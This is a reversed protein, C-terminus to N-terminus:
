NLVEKQVWEPLNIGFTNGLTDQNDSGTFEEVTMGDIVTRYYELLSGRVGVGPCRNFAIRSGEELVNGEDGAARSRYQTCIFAVQLSFLTAINDDTSKSSDFMHPKNDDSGCIGSCQQVASAISSNTFYSKEYSSDSGYIDNADAYVKNIAKTFASAIPLVMDVVVPDIGNKNVFREIAKGLIWHQKQIDSASREYLESYSLSDNSKISIIRQRPFKEVADIKSISNLALIAPFVRRSTPDFSDMRRSEKVLSVICDYPNTSQEKVVDDIEESYKGIETANPSLCWMYSSILQQVKKPLKTDALRVGAALSNCKGYLNSIIDDIAQVWTSHHINSDLMSKIAKIGIIEAIAGMLEQINQWESNSIQEGNMARVIERALLGAVSGKVCAGVGAYSGISTMNLNAMYPQFTKWDSLDKKQSPATFTKQFKDWDVPKIVDVKIGPKVLVLGVKDGDFDQIVTIWQWASPLYICGSYCLLPKDDAFEKYKKTAKYHEMTKIGVPVIPFMNNVGSVPDKKPVVTYGESLPESINVEKGDVKVTTDPLIALVKYEAGTSEFAAQLGDLLPSSLVLQNRCGDMTSKLVRERYYNQIRQYIDFVSKKDAPLKWQYGTINGSEDTIPHPVEFAIGPLFSDASPISCNLLKRKANENGEIAKKFVTIDKWYEKSGKITEFIWEFADGTPSTYKAGSLGLKFDGSFGDYKPISIPISKSFDVTMTYSDITGVIPTVRSPKLKMMEHTAIMATGAPFSWGLMSEAQKKELDFTSACANITGKMIMGEFNRIAVGNSFVTNRGKYELTADLLSCGNWYGLIGAKKLDEEGIVACTLTTEGEFLFEYLYNGSLYTFLKMVKDKAYGEGLVRKLGSESILFSQGSKTTIPIFNFRDGKDLKDRVAQSYCAAAAPKDSSVMGRFSVYIMDKTVGPKGPLCYACSDEMNNAGCHCPEEKAEVFFSTMGANPALPVKGWGAIPFAGSNIMTGRDDFIPARVHGISNIGSVEGTGGCATCSENMNCGCDMLFSIELGDILASKTATKAKSQIILNLM